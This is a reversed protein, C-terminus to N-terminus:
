ENRTQCRDAMDTITRTWNFNGSM